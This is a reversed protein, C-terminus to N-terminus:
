MLFFPELQGESRNEPDAPLIFFIGSCNDTRLFDFVTHVVIKM